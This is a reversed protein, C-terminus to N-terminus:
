KFYKIFLKEMEEAPYLEVSHHEWVGDRSYVDGGTITWGAMTLCYAYFSLQIKIIDLKSAKKKAFENFMENKSSLSTIDGQVKYDQVRGVKNKKDIILLKDIEGGMLFKLYTVYAEPICDYIDYGLQVELGIFEEEIKDVLSIIEDDTKYLMERIDKHTPLAYNEECEKKNKQIIAGVELNEEVKKETFRISEIIASYDKDKGLEINERFEHLATGFMSTSDGKNSWLNQIQAGTVKWHKALGYAVSNNFEETFFKKFSSGGRLQKGDYFASHIDKKLYIFADPETVSTVREDGESYSSLQLGAKKIEETTAM